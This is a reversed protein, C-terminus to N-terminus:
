FLPCVCVSLSLIYTLLSYKLTQLQFKEVKLMLKAQQQMFINHIQWQKGYKQSVLFIEIHGAQWGIFSM